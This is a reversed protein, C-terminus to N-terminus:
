VLEIKNRTRKEVCTGGECEEQCTGKRGQECETVRNVEREAVDIQDEEHYLRWGM